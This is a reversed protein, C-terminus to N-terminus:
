KGDESFHTHDGYASGSHLGHAAAIPALSDLITAARPDDYAIGVPWLDAALGQEHRSHGAEASTVAGSAHIAQQRLFTRFTEDARLTVNMETRAASIFLEIKARFNPQLGGLSREITPSEGRLAAFHDRVEAAFKIFFFEFWWSPNVTADAM